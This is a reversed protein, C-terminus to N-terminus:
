LGVDKIAKILFKEANIIAQHININDPSIQVLKDFGLQLLEKNDEIKGSFLYTIKQHKKALKLVGYPTKGFKTQMDSKGEGTIVLDCNQIKSELDVLNAVIEVGKELKANFFIKFCAGLGGAAGAGSFELNEGIVKEFHKFCFDLHKVMNKTAGKQLAFVYAAGNIGTLPNDVDCAILFICNKIRKDFNDENIKQIKYIDKAHIILNNDKDLFKMGLARLMGTGLDNTASGGLGIVFNKINKDLCDGIIEGLGFTTTYYPNKSKALHLGACSSMEIIATNNDIIGYTANVKTYNPGCVKKTIYRGHKADVLSNVTGEGGDAMPCSIVENICNNKFIKCIDSSSLCNKFSDPAILIKM